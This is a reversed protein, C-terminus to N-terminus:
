KKGATWSYDTMTTGEFRFLMLDSGFPDPVDSVDGANGAAVYRAKAHCAICNSATGNPLKAAELYPNYVYTRQDFRCGTGSCPYQFSLAYKLIYNSWISTSSFMQDRGIIEQSTPAVEKGKWWTTLWAWDPVDKRSIHMGVMILLNDDALTGGAPNLGKFRSTLTTSSVRMWIFHDQARLRMDTQRTRSAAQDCPPADTDPTSDYVLVHRNWEDENYVGPKILGNLDDWVGLAICGDKPIRRWTTKLETSNPPFEKFTRWGLEYSKNREKASMMQGTAHEAATPNLHVMEFTDFDSAPSRARSKSFYETIAENFLSPQPRGPEQWNWRSWDSGSSPTHTAVQSLLEWAYAKGQCTATDLDNLGQIFKNRLGILFVARVMDRGPEFLQRKHVDKMTDASCDARLLTTLLFFGPAIYAGANRFPGKM